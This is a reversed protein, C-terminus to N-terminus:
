SAPEWLDLVELEIDSMQQMRLLRLRYRHSQGIEKCAPWDTDQGAGRLALSRCVRLGYSSRSPTPNKDHRAGDM